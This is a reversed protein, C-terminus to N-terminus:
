GSLHFLTTGGTSETFGFNPTTMGEDPAGPPANVLCSVQLIAGPHPSGGIPFITVTMVLLGGQIGTSPGGYPTFRTFGTAVWTGRIIGGCSACYHTFSGSATVSSATPAINGSGTVRIADGTFPGVTAM